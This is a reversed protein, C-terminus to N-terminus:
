VMAFFQWLFRKEEEMVRIEYFYQLDGMDLNSGKYVVIV